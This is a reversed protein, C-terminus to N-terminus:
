TEHNHHSAQNCERPEDSAVLGHIREHVQVRREPPARNRCRTEPLKYQLTGRTQKCETGFSTEVINFKGEGYKNTTISVTHGEDDTAHAELEDAISTCIAKLHSDTTYETM